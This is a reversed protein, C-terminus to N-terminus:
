EDPTAARENLPLRVTVTTGAGVASIVEITGGHQEVILKTGALGIGAGAIRDVVNSGRRFRDFIFPLDAAPIGVGHDTVSLVAEAQEDDTARAVRVVIPGGEPSYKIANTLLNDIVRELLDRDWYGVVEDTGPEVVIEHRNTTQAHVLSLEQAVTVLNTRRPRLRLTGGLRIRAVDALQRIHRAMRDTSSEIVELAEEIAPGELPGRRLKRRLLQAQMRAATLPNNLDHALDALFTDAFQDAAKRASIDLWQILYCRGEPMEVAQAYMEVPVTGGDARRLELEGHWSGDAQLQQWAQQEAESAATPDGLRSTPLDAASTGLLHFAAENAELVDGQRNVLAVAVASSEFLARYRAEAARSETYLMANAIALAARRGLEEAIALDTEDYYRGEETKYFAIAGLVGGRATLPVIMASTAGAQQILLKAEPSTVETTILEPTVTSLLVSQGEQLVRSVKTPIDHKLTMTRLLEEAWASRETDRHAVAAVVVSGQPQLLYTVAWDSITNVTIRAVSEMTAQIDLSNALVAGAEALLQQGRETRKQETINRGIKTAGIVQGTEDVVPSISVSMDIRRGDRTIRITEHHDIREGRGLRALIEKLEERKEPPVIRHISQGVMEEATWGFLREAAPNWFTITGDLTKSVIVDDSTTLIASLSDHVTVAPTPTDGEPTAPPSSPSDDTQPTTM